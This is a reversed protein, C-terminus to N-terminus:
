MFLNDNLLNEITTDNKRCKEIFCQMKENECKLIKDNNEYYVLNEFFIMKYIIAGLEYINSKNNDNLKLKDFNQVLVNSDTLGSPLSKNPNKLKQLNETQGSLKVNKEGTNEYCIFINEASLKYESFGKLNMFKLTLLIQKTFKKIEEYNIIKEKSNSMIYDNLNEHSCFDLLIYLNGEYKFANHINFLYPCGRLKFLTIIEQNLLTFIDSSNNYIKAYLPYTLGPSIICTCMNLSFQATKMFPDKCIKYKEPMKEYDAIPCINFYPHALIQYANFRKEDNFDLCRKILDIIQPNVPFVTKKPYLIEKTAHINHTPDVKQPEVGFILSFLTVGYSWIDIKSSYPKQLMDPAMYTPTGVLSEMLEMTQKSIGFDGLKIELLGQTIPDLKVFCNILKIDRHTINMNHIIYLAEALEYAICWIESIIEPDSPLHSKFYKGLDGGECLELVLHLKGEYKFYDILKVINDKEKLKNLLFIETILSKKVQLDLSEYPEKLIKVAYKQPIPGIKECEYVRAFKGQGLLKDYNIIYPPLTLENRIMIPYILIDQLSIREKPDKELCRLILEYLETSIDNYNEIEVFEECLGISDMKTFKPLYGTALQCIIMGLSWVDCSIDYERSPNNLIRPDLYAFNNLYREPSYNLKPLTHGFGCTKYHFNGKEDKHILINEPFLEGHYKNINEYELLDRVIQEIFDKIFSEPLRFKEHALYKDLSGCNYFPMILYLNTRNSTYLGTKINLPRSIPDIQEAIKPYQKMLIEKAVLEQNKDRAYYINFYLPGHEQLLPTYCLPIKTNASHDKPTLTKCEVFNKTCIPRFPVTYKEM